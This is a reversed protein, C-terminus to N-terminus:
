RYFATINKFKTVSSDSDVERGRVSTNLYEPVTLDKIGNDITLSLVSGHPVSEHGNLAAETPELSIDFFTPFRYKGPVGDRSQWRV